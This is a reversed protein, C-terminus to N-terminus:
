RLNELKYLTSMHLGSLEDLINELAPVGRAIKERNYTLWALEDRILKTTDKVEGEVAGILGFTGQQAEVYSDLLPIVSEYFEGLAKHKAYSGEGTVKWHAIHSANRAKFVRDILEEIM